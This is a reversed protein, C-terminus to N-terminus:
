HIIYNIELKYALRVFSLIGDLTDKNVNEMGLLVILHETMSCMSFCPPVLTSINVRQPM